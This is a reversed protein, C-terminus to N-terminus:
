AYPRLWEEAFQERELRRLLRYGHAVSTLTVHHHWGQFSRGEFHRLGSEETLLALDAEVRDRVELLGVMDVIGTGGLNTLWVARPRPHGMPWEALVHRLRPVVRGRRVDASPASLGPVTAVVFHSSVMEGTSEERWSLTRRGRKLAAAALQGVTPPRTHAGVLNASLAATGAPVRALYHLGRAELGELLPSVEPESSLDVVIPAAPLGWDGTMEDVSDLLYRWSPQSREWEPVRAKARREVDDDWARPMVLRWNVPSSGDDGALFVGIARQCNLMRGASPAFQRGVAVSSDGNKPFVVEQVVWAKTRMSSSVQEALRRRVPAWAWPSQNVFQQLSQDADRGVVLDSMRRISKRGPVSLLGRVYAEGWRRQDSRGLSTFLGECFDPLTSLDSLDDETSVVQYTGV